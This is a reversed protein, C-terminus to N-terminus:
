KRTTRSTRSRCPGESCPPRRRTTAAPACSSAPRFRRRSSTRARTTRSTTISERPSRTTPRFAEEIGAGHPILSAKGLLARSIEQVEGVRWDTGVGWCHCEFMAECRALEQAVKTSAESENKGDTLFIAERIADPAREFIKRAAALGASMATGGAASLLALAEAAVHKNEPTAQAEQMVIRAASDFAVVFFWAREDLMAIAQTVARKVGEIREGAMSGSKDVIFGVVLKGGSASIDRPASGAEAAVSLIADVRTQGPALFRNQFAEVKFAM